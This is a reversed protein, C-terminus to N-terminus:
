RGRLSFRRFRHGCLDCRFPYLRIIRLLWEVLGRRRSRTIRTGQCHPCQWRFVAREKGLQRCAWAYPTTKTSCLYTIIMIAYHAQTAQALPSSAWWPVNASHHQTVSCPPCPLMTSSPTVLGGGGGTSLWGNSSRLVQRISSSRCLGSSGRGPHVDNSHIICSPGATSCTKQTPLAMRADGWRGGGLFGPMVGTAQWWMRPRRCTHHPFIAAEQDPQCPKTHAGKRPAEADRRSWLRARGM